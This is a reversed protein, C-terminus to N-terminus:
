PSAPPASDWTGSVEFALGDNVVDVTTTAVGLSSFGFSDADPLGASVMLKQFGAGDFAMVFLPSRAPTPSALHDTARQASNAGAAIVLRDSTMAVHASSIPIGLRQTPIAVPRGDGTVQIGAIAALKGGLVAVLDAIHDASVLVHGVINLPKITAEDVVLAFGRLGRFMPHLPAALGDALQEGAANVGALWPCSLPHDHLQGAISRLWSFMEEPSVAAGLAFLPHGAPRAV